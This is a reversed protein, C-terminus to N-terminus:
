ENMALRTGGSRAGLGSRLLEVLDGVQKEVRQPPAQFVAANGDLFPVCYAQLFRDMVADLTFVVLDVDLDPRLDGEAMGKEVLPTLYEASFLHIKELFEERFPFDEQFLMKLYIQYIHPHQRIFAVGALLSSRIREFFDQDATEAKVRRLNHRILEVAHDFIFRFLGEKTGFYQFLSGKAIGSMRAMRNLSAQRFGHRAFEHIATALIKERKPPKLRQFTQTVAM